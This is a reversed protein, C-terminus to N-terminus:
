AAGGDAETRAHLSDGERRRLPAPQLMENLFMQEPVLGQGIRIVDDLASRIQPWPFEADDESSRGERLAADLKAVVGVLSAAPTKSLAELLDEARDAADREARLTASYGIERDGKDWRMQHAAFDAEAKARTATGEPDLDLVEHLAKLSHLTVCRGDRLRVTACPFGIAEVLNRELRQQQRCLRVTEEQAAKWKRGAMVAPDATQDKELDISAVANGQWGVIAIATGGLARRRTVFPLTTNIESDAM